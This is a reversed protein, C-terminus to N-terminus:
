ALEHQHDAAWHALAALPGDALSAGLPSLRYSAGRGPARTVLSRECLRRLSETLAKDSIGGIRAILEHRRLPGTRLATLVVPDWTHSVLDVAARVSCDSVFTQCKGALM